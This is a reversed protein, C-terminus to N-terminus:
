NAGSQIPTPRSLPVAVEAATDKCHVDRVDQTYVDRGTKPDDVVLFLSTREAKIDCNVSRCEGRNLRVIGVVTGMDVLFPKSTNM